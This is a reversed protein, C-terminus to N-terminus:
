INSLIQKSITINLTGKSIYYILQQEIVNYITLNNRNM